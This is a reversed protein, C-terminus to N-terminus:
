IKANLKEGTENKEFSELVNLSDLHYVLKKLQNEDEIGLEDKLYKAVEERSGGKKLSQKANSLAEAAEPSIENKEDKGKSKGGGLLQGVGPLSKLIGGLGGGESKEGSKSEGAGSLASGAVSAILPIAAM